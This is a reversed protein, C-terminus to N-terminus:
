GWCENIVASLLRVAGPKDLPENGSGCKPSQVCSPCGDDCGCGDIADRTASLWQDARAFAREAFGAGGAHGDYVFVTPMGTDPHLATSVGGVDWRDCTAVLPLMGISAHEAAHAAGPLTAADVRAREVLAPGATWWTAVTRLQREPLNLPEEGIIEGSGHRRKLYSVVQQTVDVRGLYLGVDGREHVRTTGSIAIDTIERSSTWWDPAAAEVLAVGDELDLARVLYTHGQHLYVAGPHVTTHAAGPDVTGLLRGTAAECIQLPRGTGGRLDTLMAARERRTWYWGAPRRRLLGSGVLEDVAAPASPGFMALDPEVLPLEAAAAALHPTVVHPNDPDLVAAEVPQGFIAKPHHVLYTDLPDDRAIFVSLAPAGDRGARGSQQWLSARTGPWGAILVADLGSVDIGLELANTSALGLLDGRHLAHELDRRDEPLYGARYAAVRDATLPAVEDLADRAALAVTEAGRRSRVFAVTRVGAGVLTALLTAAEATATRRVALERDRSEVMPPEWLVIDIPGRPSSDHVIEEVELGTLARATTGPEAVTASALVFVPDAGYCAAVRRLRRLVQAVHSGFVGRYGHCEDVVVYRLAKFFRAWRAHGPLLGHHLMDPNTLVIDAHRRAWDREEVTCDGDVTAARVGEIGLRSIVRLQDGALAKTPAIYLTTGSTAIAASLAPLLYGLSKGSATGTAVVVSRGAWAHEAAAVQHTWPRSVGIGTIAEVLADPTWRPWDATTAPRSPLREVHRVRERAEPDALLRDLPAAGPSVEVRFRAASPSTETVM